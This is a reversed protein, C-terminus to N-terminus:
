KYNFNSVLDSFKMYEISWTSALDLVQKTKKTINKGFYKVKGYELEYEQNAVCIIRLPKGYLEPIEQYKIWTGLVKEGATGDVWWNSTKVEYIYEDTEWDPKFGGKKEVKIPNEGRLKLVDHVLGEGLLTTWQGNNTQSIMSNGWEKEKKEAEKKLTGINKDATKVPKNPKTTAWKIREILKEDDVDLSKEVVSCHPQFIPRRNDLDTLQEHPLGNKNTNIRGSVSYRDPINVCSNNLQTNEMVESQRTFQESM